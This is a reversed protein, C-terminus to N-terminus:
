RWSRGTAPRHRGCVPPWDASGVLRVVVLLALSDAHHRGVGVVPAVLLRHDAPGRLRQRGPVADPPGRAQRQDAAPRQHPMRQCRVRREDNVRVAQLIGDEVVEPLRVVVADGSRGARRVRRHFGVHALFDSEYHSPNVVRTMSLVHGALGRHRHHRRFGFRHHIEALTQPRRRIGVPRYGQVPVRGILIHGTVPYQAVAMRQALEVRQHVHRVRAARRGGVSVGTHNRAHRVVVAHLGDPVPHQAFPGYLDFDERHPLCGVARGGARGAM